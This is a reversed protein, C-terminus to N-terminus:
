NSNIINKWYKTINSDKSFKRYFYSNCRKIKLLDDNKTVNIITKPSKAINQFTKNLEIIKNKYKQLEEKKNLDQATKEKIYLKQLKNKILKKQNHIYEWDDFIVAFDKYKLKNKDLVSLFFEDGVKMKHFFDLKHQQNKLLLEKVTKRNLCFRAYHKIFKPPILLKEKAAFIKQKEIREFFNYKSINMKKIWCLPDSICDKYFKDFSKIPLCSESITIFKYNNKDQYAAKLLEIYAETIHGWATEKLEKIMKDKNWTLKEPYKPHIYLTYQSEYGKFYKDWIEPFNPNEITLFLFAIKKTKNNTNNSKNINNMNNNM